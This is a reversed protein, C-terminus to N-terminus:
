DLVKTNFVNYSTPFQTYIWDAMAERYIDNNTAIKDFLHVWAIDYTFMTSGNQRSDNGIMFMALENNQGATPNRTANPSYLMQNNYNNFDILSFSGKNSILTNIPNCTFSLGIGRNNVHLLYWTDLTINQSLNTEGMGWRGISTNISLTATSSNIPNIIIQTINNNVGFFIFSERFVSMSKIRFAITLTKWSQYAINNFYIYNTNNMRSFSKNGPSTARDDKRTFPTLGNSTCFYSFLGPNRLEEFLGNKTNTEFSLFPANKECTLSYNQSKFQSPGSCPINSFEFANWGCGADEFFMKVINPTASKFDSCIRSEYATPGQLGLNEFWGPEDKGWSEQLMAKKDIDAPQNVTIWFGDDIVVRFRSSFDNKARIDTLQLFCGCPIGGLQSIASPGARLQVIDTEITRKLFGTIRNPPYGPTLVFWFVEVGQTYPARDIAKDLKIGLMDEMANAQIKYSIATDVFSENVTQFSERTRSKTNTYMNNFIQQLYQRVSAINQLSNYFSINSSNPYLRGNPTGGMKLFLSQLCRLEFPATTADSLEACVDYNSFDGIRLCLDRSSAGLATNPARNTNSALQRVEQLAQSISTRGQKFLDINFPPRASRNYIKVAVSDKLDELYDNTNMNNPNSLALALAGRRSCGGAIVQRELCERSLKGNIPDCTRDVYPQPGPPPPPPPPCQDASQIIQGGCDGLSNGAYRARGKDDIPIGQNKIICYGCDNKYIENDIDKCNKLTKCKDLLIQKKALELDFFWQKYNPLDNIKYPGTIDGYAGSSLTAYPSGQVSPPTYLWGCGIKSNRNKVAILADLSSQSCYRLNDELSDSPVKIFTSDPLGDEMRKGLTDMTQTAEEFGLVDGSASLNVDNVNTAHQTQRDSFEVLEESDTKFPELLKALNRFM